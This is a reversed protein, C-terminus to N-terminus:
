ASKKLNECCAQFVSCTCRKHTNITHDIRRPYGPLSEIWKLDINEPSAGHLEFCQALLVADQRKAFKTTPSDLLEDM